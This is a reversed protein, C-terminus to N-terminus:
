PSAPRTSAEQALASRAVRRERWFTYLGSGVVLGAGAITLPAPVDDFILVGLVLAWVLATYRFPAAFSIDGVRMTLISFHYGLILFVASGALLALVEGTAPVWDTVTAGVGGAATIAVAAALTVTMSPTDPALGRTILDRFTVFGVALVAWLTAATYGEAGPRLIMLVGILGVAIATLRRWGVPEALFVAAALTVTLPTAQLIASTRPLGLEILASIFCLTAGVEAGSRLLVRLRDEPRLRRPRGPRLLILAGILACAMLGRLFLAEFRPMGALALKMFADNITYGGMSIVMFLAARANAAAVGDSM